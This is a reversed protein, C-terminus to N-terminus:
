LEVHFHRFVKGFSYPKNVSCTNGSTESCKSAPTMKVMKHSLTRGTTKNKIDDSIWRTVKTVKEQRNHRNAHNHLPVAPHLLGLELAGLRAVVVQEVQSCGVCGHVLVVQLIDACEYVYPFVRKEADQEKKDTNLLDNWRLLINVRRRNSGMPLTAVQAEMERHLPHHPAVQGTSPANLLRLLCAEPLQLSGHCRQVLTSVSIRQQLLVVCGEAEGEPEVVVRVLSVLYWWKM